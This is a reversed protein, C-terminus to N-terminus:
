MCTFTAPICGFFIGFVALMVLRNHFVVPAKDQYRTAYGRDQLTHQPWCGLFRTQLLWPFILHIFNNFQDCFPISFQDSSKQQQQLGWALTERSETFSSIIQYKIIIISMFAFRFVFLLLLIMSAVTIFFFPLYLVTIVIIAFSVPFWIFFPLVSPMFSLCKVATTFIFWLFSSLSVFLLSSPAVTATPIIFSYFSLLFTFCIIVWSTM